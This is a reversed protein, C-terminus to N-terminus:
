FQIYKELNNMHLMSYIHAHTAVLYSIKQTFSTVAKAMAM